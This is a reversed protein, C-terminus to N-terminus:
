AQVLALLKEEIACAAELQLNCDSISVGSTYEYISVWDRCCNFVDYAESALQKIEASDIENILTYDLDTHFLTFADFSKKTNQNALLYQAFFKANTVNKWILIVALRDTATGQYKLLSQLDEKDLHRIM